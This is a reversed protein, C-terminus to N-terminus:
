ELATLDSGDGGARLTRADSFGLTREMSARRLTMARAVGRQTDVHAIARPARM